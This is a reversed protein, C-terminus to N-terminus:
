EAGWLQTFKEVSLISGGSVSSYLMKQINQGKGGNKSM